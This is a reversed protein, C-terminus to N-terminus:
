NAFVIVHAYAIDCLLDDLSEVELAFDPHTWRGQYKQIGIDVTSVFSKAV